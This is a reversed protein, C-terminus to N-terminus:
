NNSHDKSYRDKNKQYISDRHQSASKKGQQISYASGFICAVMLATTLGIRFRSNAKDM